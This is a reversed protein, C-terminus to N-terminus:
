GRRQIQVGHKVEDEIHGEETECCYFREVSVRHSYGRVISATDTGENRDDRVDCGSSVHVM